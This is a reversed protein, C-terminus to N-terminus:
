MVTCAKRCFDSVNMCNTTPIPTTTAPSLQIAVDSTSSSLTALACGTFYDIGNRQTVALFSVSEYPVSGIQGKSGAMVDCLALQDTQAIASPLNQAARGSILSPCDTKPQSHDFVFVQVTDAGVAAATSPFEITYPVSTPPSASCAGISATGLVGAVVLTIAKRMMAAIIGARAPL